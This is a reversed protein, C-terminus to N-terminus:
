GGTGAPQDAPIGHNEILQSKTMSEAVAPPVGQAVAHDVWDSKPATTAPAMRAPEEVVPPVTAYGAATLVLDDTANYQRLITTVRNHEEETFSEVTFKGDPVPDEGTATVSPSGDTVTVELNYSM